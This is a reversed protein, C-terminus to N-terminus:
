ASDGSDERERWRSHLHGYKRDCHLNYGSRERMIANLEAQTRPLDEVPVGEEKVMEVKIPLSRRVSLNTANTINDLSSINEV